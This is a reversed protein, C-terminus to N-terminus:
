QSNELSLVKEIFLKHFANCLFYFPAELNQMEKTSVEFYELDLEQALKRGSEESVRRRNALDTKNGILVGPIYVGGRKSRLKESWTKVNKFSAENTVDYVLAVCSPHDWHQQIFDGFMNDGACDYIYLDVTDQTDPINVMKVCLEVGTTMNYTKPFHTGDSHFSQILASKGVTPDGLVVLKSRLITM